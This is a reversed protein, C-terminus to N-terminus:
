IMILKKAEKVVQQSILGDGENAIELCKELLNKLWRIGGKTTRSITDVFEMKGSETFNYDTIINIIQPETLGITIYNHIIRSDIQGYNEHSSRKDKFHRGIAPSGVMIVTTGYDKTLDHLNRITEVKNVNKMPMIQDVEDFILTRPNDRLYEVLEDFLELKSSAQLSTGCARAISKLIDKTSMLLNCRIYIAKDSTEVFKEVSRTKGTGANGQITAFANVREAARCLGLIAKADKTHIFGLDVEGAKEKAEEAMEYEKKLEEVATVFEESVGGGELFKNIQSRSYNLRKGLDTRTVGNELLGQLFDILEKNKMENM